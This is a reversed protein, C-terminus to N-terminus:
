QIQTIIAKSNRRTTRGGNPTQMRRGKQVKWPALRRFGANRLPLGLGRRHLLGQALV